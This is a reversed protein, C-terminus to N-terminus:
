IKPVLNLNKETTDFVFEIKKARVWPLTSQFQKGFNNYKKVV